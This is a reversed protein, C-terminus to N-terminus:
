GSAVCTGSGSSRGSESGSVPAPLYKQFICSFFDNSYLVAVPANETKHAFPGDSHAPGGQACCAGFTLPPTGAPSHKPGQHPCRLQQGQPTVREPYLQQSQITHHIQLHCPSAPLTGMRRAWAWGGARAWRRLLLGALHLPPARTGAAPNPAVVPQRNVGSGM